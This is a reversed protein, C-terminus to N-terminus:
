KGQAAHLASLDAADKAAQAANRQAIERADAAECMKIFASEYRSSPARSASPSFKPAHALHADCIRREAAFDEGHAMTAACCLAATLVVIRM